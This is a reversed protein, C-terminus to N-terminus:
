HRPALGHVAVHVHRVVHRSAPLNQEPILRPEPYLAHDLRDHQQHSHHTVKDRHHHQCSRTHGGGGVRVQGGQGDGVEDVQHEQVCEGELVVRVVLGGLEVPVPLEPPEQEPDNVGCTLIM